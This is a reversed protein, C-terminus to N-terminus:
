KEVIKLGSKDLAVNIVNQNLSIGVERFGQELRLRVNKPEDFEILGLAELAQVFGERDGTFKPCHTYIKTIAEDKTMKKQEMEKIGLNIKNLIRKQRNAEKHAAQEALFDVDEAQKWTMWHEYAKM